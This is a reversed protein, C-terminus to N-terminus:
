GMGIARVMWWGDQRAAALGWPPGPAEPCCCLMRTGAGRLELLTTAVMRM